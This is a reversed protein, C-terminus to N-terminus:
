FRMGNFDAVIEEGPEINNTALFIVSNDVSNFTENHKAAHVTICNANKKSSKADAIFCGVAAGMPFKMYNDRNVYKFFKSADIFDLNGGAVIHMHEGSKKKMEATRRDIHDGLYKTIVAGRKICLTAFVSLCGSSDLRLSLGQKNSRLCIGEWFAVQNLNTTNDTNGPVAPNKTRDIVHITSNHYTNKGGHLTQLDFYSNLLLGPEETKCVNLDDLWRNLDKDVNEMPFLLSPDDKQHRIVDLNFIEEEVSLQPPSAFRSRPKTDREAFGLRRRNAIKCLTKREMYDIIIEKGPNIKRKAVIYLFNQNKSLELKCNPRVKRTCHNVYGGVDAGPVLNEICSPTFMQCDIYRDGTLWFVYGLDGLEKKKLVEFDRICYGIIKAVPEGKKILISSYLGLGAGKISSKKVDLGQLYSPCSGFELETMASSNKKLKKETPTSSEAKRKKGESNPTNPWRNLLSDLSKFPPNLLTLDSSPSKLRNEM